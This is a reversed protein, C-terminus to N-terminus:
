PQVPEPQRTNPRHWELASILRPEEMNLVLGTSTQVEAVGWVEFQAMLRKDHLISECITRPDMPTQAEDQYEFREQPFLDIYASETGKTTKGQGGTIIEYEGFKPNGVYPGGELTLDLRKTLRSIELWSLKQPVDFKTNIFIRVFAQDLDFRVLDGAAIKKFASALQANRDEYYKQIRQEREQLNGSDDFIKRLIM